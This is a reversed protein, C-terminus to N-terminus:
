GFKGTFYDMVAGEGDYDRLTCVGGLEQWRRMWPQKGEIKQGGVVVHFRIGLRHCEMVWLINLSKRGEFEELDNRWVRLIREARRLPIPEPFALTGFWKWDCEDNDLPYQKLERLIQTKSM